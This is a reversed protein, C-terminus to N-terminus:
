ARLPALTRAVFAHVSAAGRAGRRTAYEASSSAGERRPVVSDIGHFSCFCDERPARAERRRADECYEEDGLDRKESALVHEVKRQAHGEHSARGPLRVEIHTGEARGRLDMTSEDVKAGETAVKLEEEHRRDVHRDGDQGKGERAHPERHEQSALAAAPQAKTRASGRTAMTRSKPSFASMTVSTVAKGARRSRRSVKVPITVPKFNQAYRATATASEDKAIARARGAEWAAIADRLPGQDTEVDVHAVLPSARAASRACARAARPSRRASGRRSRRAPPPTRPLCGRGRRRASSRPAGGRSRRRPGGKPDEVEPATGAAVQRVEARESVVDTPRSPEARKTSIARLSM